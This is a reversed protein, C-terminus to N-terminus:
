TLTLRNHANILLAQIPVNYPCAAECRGECSLCREAKVTPLKSYKLMAHKERHQAVFYHNYRMISNVPVHHPCNAECLGCAHRCYFISCGQAYAALTTKDQQTFRSGSLKVFAEAEEFNSCTACVTHVHPNDLAYRVAAKRIEDNNKLNNKKVFVQAEKVLLEYRSMVRKLYAPIEKGEKKLREVENEFYLYDAVPNTKMLTTGINKDTCVKLVKEGNEKALFNYVLLMVDFRGDQAAALLIKEMSEEPQLSGWHTGHNSIGVFRIRGESKLESMADHFGKEKITAVNQASHIMM